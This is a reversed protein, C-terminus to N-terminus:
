PANRFTLSRRHRTVTTACCSPSGLISFSPSERPLSWINSPKLDRAGGLTRRMTCRPASGVSSNLRDAISLRRRDCFTSRSGAVHEMVLYPRGDPTTGGDLLRAVNPHELDALVQRERRFRRYAEPSHLGSRVLKIAVQQRFEGDARHGLYVTGM